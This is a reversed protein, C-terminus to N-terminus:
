PTLQLYIIDSNDIGSLSFLKFRENPLESVIKGFSREVKSFAVCELTFNFEFSVVGM